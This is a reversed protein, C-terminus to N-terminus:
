SKSRPICYRVRNYSKRIEECNQKVIKVAPIIRKGFFNFFVYEGIRQFKGCYEQSCTDCYSIPCTTLQISKSLGEYFHQSGDHIYLVTKNGVTAFVANKQLVRGTSISYYDEFIEEDYLILGTIYYPPRFTTLFLKINNYGCFKIFWFIFLSICVIAVIKKNVRKSIM